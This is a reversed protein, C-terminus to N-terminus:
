HLKGGWEVVSFGKRNFQELKLEEVKKYKDLWEFDMFIRLINNPKPKITIPVITNLYDTQLFTIFYYSSEKMKPLWYEKFDAREKNNLWIYSLKDDLFTDINEKKVVFWKSPTKYSILDEWFLYPYIKWSKKDYINSEPDSIVEWSNTYTPISTLIKKDWDLTISINTKNKPYLYIVPKAWCASPMSTNWSLFMVYRWFPDKWFFLPMTEVYKEYSLFEIHSCGIEKSKLKRNKDLCGADDLQWLYAYNYMWKLLEHNEDEFLYINEKDEMNWSRILDDNSFHIILEEETLKQSQKFWIGKSFWVYYHKFKYAWEPIYMYTWDKVWCSSSEMYSYHWLKKQIWSASSYKMISEKQSAWSQYIYNWKEIFPIELNYIATTWDSMKMFIADSKFFDIKDRKKRFEKEKKEWLADIEKYDMKELERYQEDWWLKKWTKEIYLSNNDTWAQKNWTYILNLKRFNTEDFIYSTKKVLNLIYKKWDKSFEIKKNINFSNQLIWYFQAEENFIINENIFKKSFNDIESNIDKKTDLFTTQSIKSIFYYKWSYNIFYLLEWWRHYFPISDVLILEWTSKKFDIDAVKYYTTDKEFYSWIVSDDVKNFDNKFFWLNNITQPKELFTIRPPIEGKLEEKKVTHQTCSTLLLTLIITIIIKM